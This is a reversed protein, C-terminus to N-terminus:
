RANPSDKFRLRVQETHLSSVTANTAADRLRQNIDDAYETTAVGNTQFMKQFRVVRQLEVIAQDVARNKGFTLLYRERAAACKGKADIPHGQVTCAEAMRLFDSLEFLPMEKIDESAKALSRDTVADPNFAASAPLM